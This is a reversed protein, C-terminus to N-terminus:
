KIENLDINKVGSINFKKSYKKEKVKYQKNFFPKIKFILFAEIDDVIIKAQEFPFHEIAVQHKLKGNAYVIDLRSCLRFYVNVDKKNVYRSLVQMAKAHGSFRKHVMLSMTQGIYEIKSGNKNSSEWLYIPAGYPVRGYKEILKEAEGSNSNVEIEDKLSVFPLGKGCLSEPDYQETFEINVEYNDFDSIDALHVKNLNNTM